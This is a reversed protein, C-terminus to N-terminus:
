KVGQAAMAADIAADSENTHLAWRGGWKPSDVGIFLGFEDLESTRFKERLWRYRAADRANEDSIRAAIVHAFTRIVNHESCEDRVAIKWCEDIVEDSLQAPAPRRSYAAQWGIWKNQTPAEKAEVMAAEFEARCQKLEEQKM